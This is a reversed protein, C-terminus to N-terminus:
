GRIKHVEAAPRGTIIAGATETAKRLPDDQLHAYRATTGPQTHGLLAGIVPLSLGSSVLVSAYTHRLDHVHVGSIGAAKCLEVWAKRPRTRHDGGLGPFVFESEATSKLEVLLQRAPASLPVRHETKQKTTAGPKTWIGADLDFQGWQASLVEGTRSGTLLLMRIINAAQTDPHDALAETLRALEDSSLYRQRKTEQNREIGKAPNDTRMKWRIALGFMVSLLAVARNAHTQVGRRTLKRHLGDIDSFTVEAVKLNKLDPLIYNNIISRYHAQTGPRKKPLHEEIFRTCLDAVSPAERGAQIEALPDQGQDIQKGLERAHARAAAVTWDPFKGITFRRERGLKTRYNLVFSRAGAATVRIGFGTVESDYYVKNGTAPAPLDRVIKDSLKTAM